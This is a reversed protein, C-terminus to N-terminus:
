KGFVFRGAEFTIGLRSFDDDKEAFFTAGGTPDHGSRALFLADAASVAASESFADNITGDEVCKFKGEFIVEAITDPFRSDALRNLIVNVVGLKAALPAEEGCAACAFRCILNEEAASLVAEEAASPLAAVRIGYLLVVLSVLYKTIKM